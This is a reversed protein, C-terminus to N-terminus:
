QVGMRGVGVKHDAGYNNDWADGSNICFSLVM